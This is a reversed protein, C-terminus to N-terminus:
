EMDVLGESLLNLHTSFPQDHHFLPGCIFNMMVM